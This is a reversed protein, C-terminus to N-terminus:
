DSIFNILDNFSGIIKGEEDKIFREAAQINQFALIGHNMPTKVSRSSVFYSTEADTWKGSNYDVVHISLKKYGYKENEVFNELMCGLDDFYKTIGDPTRYQSAFLKESIIMRCRECTEEGYYIEKPGHQEENVCSLILIIAPILLFKKM